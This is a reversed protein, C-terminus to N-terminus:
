PVIIEVDNNTPPLYKQPLHPISARDDRRHGRILRMMRMPDTSVPTPFNPHYLILTKKSAEVEYGFCDVKPLVFPLVVTVKWIRSAIFPGAELLLM